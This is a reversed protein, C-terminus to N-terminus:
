PLAVLIRVQGALSSTGTDAPKWSLYLRQNLEQMKRKARLDIEFVNVANVTAGNSGPLLRRNLMWDLDPLNVPDLQNGVDASTGVVIGLTSVAGVSAPAYSLQAHMRMITIGLLSAGAVELGSPLDDFVVTGNTTANHSIQATTGVLKRRESRGRSFSSGRRM